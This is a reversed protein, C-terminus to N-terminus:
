DDTAPSRVRIRDREAVVVRAHFADLDAKGAFDMVLRM